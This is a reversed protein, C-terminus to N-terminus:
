PRDSFPGGHASQWAPRGHYLGTQGACAATWLRSHRKVAARRSHFFGLMQKAKQRHRPQDATTSSPRMPASSRPPASNPMRSCWRERKMRHVSPRAPTMCRRPRSRVNATTRGPRRKSPRRLLKPMPRPRPTQPKKRRWSRTRAPPQRPLLPPRQLPQHRQRMAPRARKRPLAPMACRPAQARPNCVRSRAMVRPASSLTRRRCRWGRHDTASSRAAM